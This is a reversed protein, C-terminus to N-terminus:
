QNVDSADSNLTKTWVFIVMQVLNMNKQEAIEIFNPM